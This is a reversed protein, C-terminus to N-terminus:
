RNEKKKKFCTFYSCVGFAVFGSIALVLLVQDFIVQTIGVCCGIFSAVIALLYISFGIAAFLLLESILIKSKTEM